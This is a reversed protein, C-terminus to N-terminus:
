SADPRIIRGLPKFVHAFKTDDAGFYILTQGKKASGYFYSDSAIFRLRERLMCVTHKRWMAEFWRYGPASNVLMIAQKVAGADYAKTLKALWVPTADFPPNLFLTDAIWDKFLGNETDSYTFYHDARVISNAVECSAPDLQISGLAERVLDIIHPPTYWEQTGQSTLVTMPQSM